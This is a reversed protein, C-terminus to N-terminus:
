GAAPAPRLATAIAEALPAPDLTGPVPCCGPDDTCSHYVVDIFDGDPTHLQAHYGTPEQDAEPLGEPSGVLIYTGGGAPIHFQYGCGDSSEITAPVHRALLAALADTVSPHLEAPIQPLTM